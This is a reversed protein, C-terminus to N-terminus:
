MYTLSVVEVKGDNKLLSLPADDEWFIYDCRRLIKPFAVMKTASTCALHKREEYTVGVKNLLYM